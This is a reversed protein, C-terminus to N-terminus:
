FAWALNFVVRDDDNTDGGAAKAPENETFFRGEITAKINARILLALGPIFRALDEDDADGVSLAEFRCYAVWWPFLFYEAEVFWLDKDTNDSDDNGYIYGGALELDKYSIRADAGIRDFKDADDGVHTRYAFVGFRISDDRWYGSPTTALGGEESVQGSGDFGLGGIKFALGAYPDKDSNDLDSDVLGLFYRWHQGFGNIEFGPEEELDLEEQYLYNERSIRNHARNNPLAIDQMGVVGAKINLHDKGLYRSFFDEWMLWAAINTETEDQDEKEYEIETFFSFDDGFTGAALLAIEQPFLFEVRDDETGGTDWDVEGTALISIPPMGPIDSPWVAEPFVKKYAEAGLSVPQDKVYLEDDEPIKFGNLRFAEGFATLRPFPAHCTICSTKYKRTFVPIAEANDSFQAIWFVLLFFLVIGRSLIKRMM